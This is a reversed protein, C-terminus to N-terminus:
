GKEVVENEESCAVWCIAVDLVNVLGSGLLAPEYRSSVVCGINADVTVCSQATSCATLADSDITLTGVVRSKENGIEVMHRTTLM